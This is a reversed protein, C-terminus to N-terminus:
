TQIKPHYEDEKMGFTWAIAGMVTTTEEIAPVGLTTIKHTSYDEVKVFRFRRRAMSFEFLECLIPRNTVESFGHWEDLKEAHLEKILKDYGYFQIALARHEINKIGMIGNPTIDRNIYIKKYLNEDFIVGHVSYIGFGDEFEIAKGDESHFNAREDTLIYKPKKCLICISQLFIECFIGECQLELDYNWYKNVNFEFYNIKSNVLENWLRYRLLNKTEESYLNWADNKINLIEWIVKRVSEVTKYDDKKYTNLKQKIPNMQRPNLYNVIDNSNSKSKKFFIHQEALNLNLKRDLYVLAIKHAFRCALPSDLILIIPKAFGMGKYLYEIRKDIKEFSNQEIELM